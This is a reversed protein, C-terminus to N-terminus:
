KRYYNSFSNLLKCARCTFKHNCNEIQNHCLFHGLCHYSGKNMHTVRGNINILHTKKVNYKEKNKEMCKECMFSDPECKLMEVKDGEGPVEVVRECFFLGVRPYYIGGDEDNKELNFSDERTLIKNKFHGSITICYTITDNPYVFAFFNDTVTYKTPCKYYNNEQNLIIDYLNHSMIYKARILNFIKEPGPSRFSIDNSIYKSDMMTSESFSQGEATHSSNENIYNPHIFATNLGITKTLSNDLTKNEKKPLSDNDEKILLITTSEERLPHLKNQYNYDNINKNKEITQNKNAKMEYIISLINIKYKISPM